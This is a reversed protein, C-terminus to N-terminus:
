EIKIENEMGKVTKDDHPLEKFHREIKGMDVGLMSPPVNSVCFGESYDWGLEGCDESLYLLQCWPDYLSYVCKRQYPMWEHPLVEMWEPIVCLSGMIGHLRSTPHHVIGINTRFAEHKIKHLLNRAESGSLVSCPLNNPMFGSFFLVKVCDPVERGQDTLTFVDQKKYQSLFIIILLLTVGIATKKFKM